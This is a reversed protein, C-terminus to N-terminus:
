CDVADPLCHTLTAACLDGAVLLQDRILEHSRQQTPTRSTGHLKRSPQRQHALSPRFSRISATALKCAGGALPEATASICTMGLRERRRSFRPSAAHLLALAIAFMTLEHFLLPRNALRGSTGGAHTKRFLCDRSGHSTILKMPLPTLCVRPLRALWLRRM